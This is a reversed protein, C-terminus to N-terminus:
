GHAAPAPRCGQSPLERARVLRHYPDHAVAAEQETTRLRQPCLRAVPRRDHIDHEVVLAVVVLAVADPVIAAALELGAAVHGAIEAIRVDVEGLSGCGEPDLGLGDLFRGLKLACDRAGWLAARLPRGIEDVDVSIAVANPRRRGPM